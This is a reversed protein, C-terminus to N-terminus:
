NGSCLVKSTEMYYNSVSVLPILHNLFGLARPQLTGLAALASSLAWPNRFRKTIMSSNYLSYMLGIPDLSNSVLLGSAAASLCCLPVVLLKFETGQPKLHRYVAFQFIICIKTLETMRMLSHVYAFNQRNM